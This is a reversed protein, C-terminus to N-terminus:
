IAILVIGGDSYHSNDQFVVQRTALVMHAMRYLGNGTSATTHLIDDVDNENKKNQHPL